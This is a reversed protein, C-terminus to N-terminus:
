EGERLRIEGEVYGANSWDDSPAGCASFWVEWERRKGWILRASERGQDKETGFWWFSSKKYNLRVEVMEKYLLKRSSIGYVQLGRVGWM